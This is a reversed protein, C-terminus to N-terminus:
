TVLKRVEALVAEPADEMVYHGVDGLEVTTAMSWISQFRRLCEPRFCWDKMGWVLHIPLKELSPLRSELEELVGYTSHSRTLPIDRVFADVGVRNSYSDYPHLLGERVAPDLAPIREITMFTAARAFANWRRIAWTGIGPTRLVAIRWPVYPPPFAATNLVVLGSMRDLCRTAAGLGIAGGWDHVVMVINRLDLAEIWEVLTDTHTQLCYPYAEPKDSLGCGIHDVALVRHTARMARVLSRYYFSWTPNGHVAVICPSGGQGHAVPGIVVPGGVDPMDVIQGASGATVAAQIPLGADGNRKQGPGEDLYHLRPGRRTQYYHSAFPYLARWDVRTANM